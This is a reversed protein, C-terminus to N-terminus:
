KDREELLTALEELAQTAAASYSKDIATLIRVIREAEKRVAEDTVLAVDSQINEIALSLSGPKQLTRALSLMRRIYQVRQQPDKIPM